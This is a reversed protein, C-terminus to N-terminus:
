FKGISSRSRSATTMVAATELLAALPSVVAEACSKKLACISAALAM